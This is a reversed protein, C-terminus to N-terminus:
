LNFVGRSMILKSKPIPISMSDGTALDFNIIYSVGGSIFVKEGATVVLSNRWTKETKNFIKSWDIPAPDYYYTKECIPCYRKENTVFVSEQKHLCKKGM